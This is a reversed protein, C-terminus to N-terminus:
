RKLIETKVFLEFVVGKGKFSNFIYDGNIAKVRSLINFLGFGTKKEALQELVNFGIGNDEFHLTLLNKKYNLSIQIEKASAHKLTNNLLEKLIRYFVIEVNNSFRLHECNSSFSISILDKTIGLINQVAALLGYNSLLHPSLSNSIERISTISQKVLEMVQMSIYKKKTEETTENLLSLYMKMSSLLPGIEDHLDVAFRIREKEETEIVTNLLKIEFSKRFSIDQIITMILQSDLFEITKCKIEVPVHMGSVDIVETELSYVQDDNKLEAIGKRIDERTESVYLDFINIDTLLAKHTWGSINRFEENYDIINGILDHIIIADTSNNYINRFKRESELLAKEFLKRESVDISLLMIGSYEGMVKTPTYINQYYVRKGQNDIYEKEYEVVAKKRIDGLNTKYNLKLHHYKTQITEFTEGLLTGLQKKSADNQIFCVSNKDFAMFEFPINQILAQLLVNDFTQAPAIATNKVSHENKKFTAVEAELDTLKQLLLEKESIYKNM